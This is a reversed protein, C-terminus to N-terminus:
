TSGKSYLPELVNNNSDVFDLFYRGKINSSQFTMKWRNILDSCKNIKSYDWSLKSPLLLTLNFSKAKTNVIKHSNNHCGSSMFDLLLM